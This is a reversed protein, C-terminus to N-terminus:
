CWNKKQGNTNIRFNGDNNKTPQKATIVKQKEEIDLYKQIEGDEYDWTHETNEKCLFGEFLKAEIIQKMKENDTAILFFFSDWEITFLLEKDTSYLYYDKYSVKETLEFETITDLEIISTTEYFGDTVVIKNKGLLKFTKYIAIKSLTDFSGETPHWIDQDHTFKNLKDTLEPRRFVQRLAGISTRLAKNLESNNKLGSGKVVTDWSVPLGFDFIEQDTPFDKNSYSFIDANFPPIDKLIDLEQKAEEHTIQKSKKFNTNDTHQRDVKFFPLFAVFATEYFDKYHDKIKGEHPYINKDAFIDTM